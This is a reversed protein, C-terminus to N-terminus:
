FLFKPSVSSIREGLDYLALTLADNLPAAVEGRTTGSSPFPM